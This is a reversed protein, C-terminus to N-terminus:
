KQYEVRVDTLGYNLFYSEVSNRINKQSKPDKVTELQEELGGRQVTGMVVAVCMERYKDTPHPEKKVAFLVDQEGSQVRVLKQKETM